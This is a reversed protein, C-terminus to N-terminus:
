FIQSTKWKKKTIPKIWYESGPRDLSNLQVKNPNIKLIIEKISELEEKSDNFGPVIFVELWVNGEFEKTFAILGEIIKTLELNISPRNLKKFGTETVSDLSPLILDIKKLEDRLTKNSLLTSNTLLAIKYKPYYKKLFNIVEGIGSNLTPEGSGSFTIFDLNPKQSLYEDLEILIENIPIYEKRETTLNTTEGVECYVCNLSCVKHPILDVGLSIGLRRSPVPGFLHKYKM